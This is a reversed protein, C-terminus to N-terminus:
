FFDKFPEFPTQFAGERKRQASAVIQLTRYDPKFDFRVNSLMKLGHICVNSKKVAKNLYLERVYLKGM